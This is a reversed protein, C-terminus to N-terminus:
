YLEIWNSYQKFGIEVNKKMIARNEANIFDKGKAEEIEIYNKRYYHQDKFFKEKNTPKYTDFFDMSVIYGTEPREIERIKFNWHNQSDHVSVILGPLGQFKYPGTSFAIEPSFWAIWTRGGYESVAKQCLIGRITMTDEQLEWNFDSASEQYVFRWDKEDRVQSFSDYIVIDEGDKLVAWSLRVVGNEVRKMQNYDLNEADFSEVSESLAIEDGIFLYCSEESVASTNTSDGQYSVDYIIRTHFALQGSDQSYAPLYLFFLFCSCLIVRYLVM